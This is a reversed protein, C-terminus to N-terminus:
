MQLTCGNMVPTTCTRLGYRVFGADRGEHVFPWRGDVPAAESAQDPDM